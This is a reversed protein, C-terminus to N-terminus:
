DTLKVIVIGRYVGGISGDHVVGTTFYGSVCRQDGNCPANFKFQGGLNYGTVVFLAFGAIHYEGGSGTGVIDDFIPLPTPEGVLGAIDGTTCGTTPSAGPDAEKWTGTVLDIHCGSVTDLWGFGAPLFGDGDADQGAHANCPEEPNGDHFYLVREPTPLNTSLPFECESIILPLVGRMSSPYGWVATASARVTTGDFGIVEAFFPEFVTGGDATLTSTVVRVSRAVPDIVVSDVAAFGDSANAAAFSAAIPKASGLNCSIVELACDEAIALVAADAGNGLQRREDYMAGVDVALGLFGFLVVVVIATFIGVAGRDNSRSTPIPTLWQM